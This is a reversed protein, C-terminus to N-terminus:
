PKLTLEEGTLAYYLNQLQHVYKVTHLIIKQIDSWELEQYLAFEYSEFICEYAFDTYDNIKIMQKEFGFKLLWEETLPIPEPEISMCSGNRYYVALIGQGNKKIEEVQFYYPECEFDQIYNGITFEQPKVEM